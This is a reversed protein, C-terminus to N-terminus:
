LDAQKLFYQIVESKDKGHLNEVESFGELRLSEKYNRDRSARVLEIKEVLTKQKM